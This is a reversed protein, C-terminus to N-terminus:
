DGRHIAEEPAPLDNGLNLNEEMLLGVLYAVFAGLVQDDPRFTWLRREPDVVTELMPCAVKCNIIPQMEVERAGPARPFPTEFKAELSRLSPLVYVSDCVQPFFHKARVAGKRLTLSCITVSLEETNPFLSFVMALNNWLWKDSYRVRITFRRISLKITTSNNEMESFLTNDWDRMMLDLSELRPAVRLFVMAVEPVAQLSKLSPVDSAKLNAQLSETTTTSIDSLKFEELLPQAQLLNRIEKGLDVDWNSQGGVAQEEGDSDEYIICEFDSQPEDILPVELRVLKMKFIAERFKAMDPEWIWDAVGALSLSQLNEARCLAELGDPHLVSPVQSPPFLGPYRWSFNIELHRVLLALDPRLLFTELLCISRRPHEPLSIYRYLGQECVSRLSRTVMLNPISTTPLLSVVRLLLENPLNLINGNQLQAPQDVLHEPESRAAQITSQM